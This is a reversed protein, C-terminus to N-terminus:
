CNELILYLVESFYAADEATYYIINDNMDDDNSFEELLEAAKALIERQEQTM